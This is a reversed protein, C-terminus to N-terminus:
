ENTTINLVSAPSNHYKASSQRRSLLYKLSCVLLPFLSILFYLFVVFSFGQPNKNLYLVLSPKNKVTSNYYL